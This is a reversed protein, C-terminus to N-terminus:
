ASHVLRTKVSAWWLRLPTIIILNELVNFQNKQIKKLSIFACEIRILTSIWKKKLDPTLEALAKAGAREIKEFQYQLLNRIPTTTKNLQLMAPTVAFQKLEDESFFILGHRVDRHLFQIHHSLEMVLTLSYITEPSFIEDQNLVNAILMERIGATHIIHLTVEEFTNFPSLNLNQEMGDILDLLRQPSLAYWEWNKQLSIIVPHDSKGQTLKMVEGRWWAFKTRALMPDHCEFLIENLEEYFAAIAVVMDRDAKNERALSFYFASGPPAAKQYCYEAATM